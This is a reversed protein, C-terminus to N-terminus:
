GEEGARSLALGTAKSIAARAETTAKDFDRLMQSFMTDSAVVKSPQKKEDEARIVISTLAVLTATVQKLAELLDPTAAILRANAEYPDAGQARFAELRDDPISSDRAVAVLHGDSSRVFGWDDHKSPRYSWPGSTHTMRGGMPSNPTAQNNM